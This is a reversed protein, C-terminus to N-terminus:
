GLTRRYCNSRRGYYLSIQYKLSFNIILKINKIYYIIYIYIIYIFFLNLFTLFFFYILKNM